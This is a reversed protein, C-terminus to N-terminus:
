AETAHTAEAPQEFTDAPQDFDAPRYRDWWSTIAERTWAPRNDAAARALAEDAPTALVVVQAGLREAVAARKEPDALSRIVWTRRPWVAAHDEMARRIDRAIARVHPPHDHHSRSGLTRCLQDFDIVHDGPQKRQKVWTSKGAAPPGCVLIVRGPM